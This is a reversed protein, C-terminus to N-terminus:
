CRPSAACFCCRGWRSSSRPCASARSSGRGAARRVGARDRDRDVVAAGIGFGGYIALYSTTVASICIVSGISLDIGGAIIVMAEGLAFLSILSIHRVNNRLNDAGLFLPNLVATIVALAVMVGLM